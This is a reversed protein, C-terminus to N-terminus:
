LGGNDAPRTAAEGNCQSYQTHLELDELEISQKVPTRFGWTETDDFEEEEEVQSNLSKFEKELQFKHYKLSQSTQFTM